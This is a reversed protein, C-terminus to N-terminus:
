PTGVPDGTTSGRLATIYETIRQQEAIFDPSGEPNFSLGVYGSVADELQFRSRIFARLVIPCDSGPLTFELGVQVVNSLTEEYARDVVVGAGEASIDRMRGITEHARGPIQIAVALPSSPQVRLARRENFWSLLETSLMARLAAPDAFALSVRRYQDRRMSSQVTATITVSKSHMGHLRLTVTSGIPVAPRHAFPARLSCGFLSLDLVDGVLAGDQGSLEARVPEGHETAVRYAHRREDNTKRM